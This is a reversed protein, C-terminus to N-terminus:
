GIEAIQSSDLPLDIAGETAQHVYAKFVQGYGTRFTIVCGERTVSGAKAASAEAFTCALIDAFLEESIM